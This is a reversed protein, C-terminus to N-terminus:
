RNKPHCTWGVVASDPFERILRVGTPFEFARIIREAPLDFPMDAQKVVPRTAQLSLLLTFTYVTAQAFSTLHNLKGPIEILM